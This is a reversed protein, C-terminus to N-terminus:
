VSTKINGLKKVTSVDCTVDKCPRIKQVVLFILINNESREKGM